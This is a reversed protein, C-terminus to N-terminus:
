YDEDIMLNKRNRKIDALQEKTIQEISKEPTPQDEPLIGNIRKIANRVEQGVENHAKSLNNAGHINEKKIKEDAQSIRFLNAILENGNM